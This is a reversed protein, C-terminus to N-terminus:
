DSVAGRDPSDKSREKTAPQHEAAALISPEEEALDEQEIAKSQNGEEPERIMMRARKSGPKAMHGIEGGAAVIDFGQEGKESMIEAAEIWPFPQDGTIGLRAMVQRYEDLPAYPPPSVATPALPYQERTGYIHLHTDCTGPPAKAYM